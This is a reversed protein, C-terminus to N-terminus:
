FGKELQIYFQELELEKKYFEIAKNNLKDGLKELHILKIDMDEISAKMNRIIKNKSQWYKAEKGLKNFKRKPSIKPPPCRDFEINLRETLAISYNADNEANQFEKEIVMLELALNTLELDCKQIANKFIFNM